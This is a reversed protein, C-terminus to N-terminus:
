NAYIKKIVNIFENNGYHHYEQHNRYYDNIIFVMSRYKNFLKSIADDSCEKLGEIFNQLLTRKACYPTISEWKGDNYSEFLNRTIYRLNKCIPDSFHESLIECFGLNILIIIKKRNNAIIKKLKEEKFRQAFNLGTKEIPYNFNDYNFIKSFDYLSSKQDNYKNHIHIAKIPTNAFSMINIQINNVQTNNTSNDINNITTSNDINNITTNITSNLKQNEDKLKQNEKKLRNIEDKFYNYDEVLIEISNNPKQIPINIPDDILNDSNFIPINIPDDILNNELYDNITTDITTEINRVKIADLRHNFMHNDLNQKSSLIKDCVTCKFLNRAKKIPIVNCPIKKDNHKKLGYNSTFEKNCLICVFRSM